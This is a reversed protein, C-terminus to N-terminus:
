DCKEQRDIGIEKYWLTKSLELKMGLCERERERVRERERERERGRDRM